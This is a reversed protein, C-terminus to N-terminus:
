RSAGRARRRALEAFLQAYADAVAAASMHSEAFGRGRRGMEARTAPDDILKALAAVFARSNEAPTVLGCGASDLVRAVETGADVSAVVARGAALISYLKSPVSCRALRRRLAVVHIDASALVEALREQPQYGVLVVNPLGAAEAELAQLASGAGNVVFVVDERHRLARAADLMIGLPQSLGVNGAYMVVVREGLDHEARYYTLRDAPRIRDADVFNPIMQVRTNWRPDIKAKVDAAIDDSLVTVADALRYALREIQRAAAAVGPSRIAGVEIAADPFVDQVNFVLPARWRQAAAWGVMALTIPPSMALVGEPGKAGPGPGAPRAAPGVAVASAVASFAAYGAARAVVSRKDTPFPHVRTVRAAGGAAALPVESRVLRGRWQPEVRHLRYWPLSTVVSIRHGAERLQDVIAAMVVGTPALDPEFHPCVVLLRM